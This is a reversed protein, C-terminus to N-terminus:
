VNIEGGKIIESVIEILNFLDPVEELKKDGKLVAKAWTIAVISNEDFM